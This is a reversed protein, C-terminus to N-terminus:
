QVTPLQHNILESLNTTIHLYHKYAIIWICHYSTLSQFCPLYRISISYKMLYWSYMVLDYNLYRQWYPLVSILLSYGEVINMVFTVRKRAEGRLEWDNLRNIFINYMLFYVSHLAYIVRTFQKLLVRVGQRRALFRKMTEEQVNKFAHASYLIYTCKHM